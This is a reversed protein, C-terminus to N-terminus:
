YSNHRVWYAFPTIVLVPKNTHRRGSYSLPEPQLRIVIHLQEDGTIRKTKKCLRMYRANETPDVQEYGCSKLTSILFNSVLDISITDTNIEFGHRNVQYQAHLSDRVLTVDSGFKKNLIAYLWYQQSYGNIHKESIKM